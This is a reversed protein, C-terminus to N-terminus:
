FSIKIPIAVVVKVFIYQLWRGRSWLHVWTSCKWCWRAWVLNFRKFHCLALDFVWMVWRGFFSLPHSDKLLYQSPNSQRSCIWYNGSLTLQSIVDKTWVEKNKSSQLLFILFSFRALPHLLAFGGSSSLQLRSFISVKDHTARMVIIAWAQDHSWACYAIGPSGRELNITEGEEDFEMFQHSLIRKYFVQM